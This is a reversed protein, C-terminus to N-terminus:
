NFSKTKVLIRSNHKVMWMQIASVFSRADTLFLYPEILELEMLVYENDCFVLDVRAYLLNFDVAKLVRKAAKLAANDIVEIVESECGFEAQTRYEGKRPTKRVAHSFTGDFFLLSIEGNRIEPLFKQALHTFSGDLVPVPDDRKVCKQGISSSGVERKIVLESCNLEQFARKLEEVSVSALRTTPPIPIGHRENLELLYSKSSNWSIAEPSSFVPCYKEDIERMRELFLECSQTYDWAMLPLVAAFRSWDEETKWPVKEFLFVSGEENMLEVQGDAFQADSNSVLVAIRPKTEQNKKSSARKQTAFTTTDM